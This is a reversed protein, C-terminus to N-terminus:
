GHWGMIRADQANVAIVYGPVMRQGGIAVDNAGVSIHADARNFTAYSNTPFAREEGLTWGTLARKFHDIITARDAAPTAFYARTTAGQGGEPGQVVTSSLFIAGPLVPVGSLVEENAAADDHDPVVVLRAGKPIQPGSARDRGYVGGLAVGVALTFLMGLVLFISPRGTM